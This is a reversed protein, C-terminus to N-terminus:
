YSFEKTPVNNEDDTGVDLLVVNDGAKNSDTQIASYDPLSAETDNVHQIIVDEVDRSAVVYHNTSEEITAPTGVLLANSSKKRMKNKHQMISSPKIMFYDDNAEVTKTQASFKGAKKSPASLWLEALRQMDAQNQAKRTNPSHSSSIVPASGVMSFLPMDSSNIGQGVGIAHQLQGAAQALLADTSRSPQQSHGRGPKMGSMSPSGKLYDGKEEIVQLRSGGTGDDGDDDSSAFDHDASVNSNGNGYLDPQLSDNSKLIQQDSSMGVLSSALAFKQSAQVFDFLEAIEEKLDLLDHHLKSIPTKDTTVEDVIQNINPTVTHTESKPNVSKIISKLSKKLTNVVAVSDSGPVANMQTEVQQMQRMMQYKQAMKRIEKRRQAIKQRKKREKYEKSKRYEPDRFDAITDVRKMAEKKREDEEDQEVDGWQSESNQKNMWDRLLGFLAPVLVVIFMLPYVLVTFIIFSIQQLIVTFRGVEARNRYCTNCIEPRYVLLLEADTTDLSPRFQELYKNLDYRQLNHTKCHACVWYETQTAFLDQLGHWVRIGYSRGHPKLLRGGGEVDIYRNILVVMLVDMVLWVIAICFVFINLPPPMLGSSKDLEYANKIYQYVVQHEAQRIVKNYTFTIMAILLRLMLLGVVLYFIVTIQGLNSRWLPVWGDDTCLDDGEDGCYELVSFDIKGFTSKAMYQFTSSATSFEESHDGVFSRVAFAFGIMILGTLKLYNSLDNKMAGIIKILPGLTSDQEFFHLTRGWLLIANLGYLFNFAVTWAEGDTRCCADEMYHDLQRWCNCIYSDNYYFAQDPDYYMDLYGNTRYTDNNSCLVNTDNHPLPWDNFTLDCGSPWYGSTSSIQSTQACSQWDKMKYGTNYNYEVQTHKEKCAGGFWEFIYLARVVIQLFFNISIAMDIYNTWNTLYETVGEEHCLQWLEFAMYGVNFVWFLVESADPTEYLKPRRILLYSFFILYCTYLTMEVIQKGIPQFYFTRPSKMIELLNWANIETVEFTRQPNLFFPERSIQSAIKKIKSQSLFGYLRYEFALDLPTMGEVDSPTELIIAALHHSEVQKILEVAIGVYKEKMKLFVEKASVEISAFEDAMAAVKLAAAISYKSGRIVGLLVNDIRKFPLMLFQRNYELILQILTATPAIMSIFELTHLLFERQKLELKGMVYAFCYVAYRDYDLEIISSPPTREGQKCAHLLMQVAKLKKKNKIVLNNEENVEYGNGDAGDYGFVDLKSEWGGAAKNASEGNPSQMEISPNNFFSGMRISPPLPGGSEEEPHKEEGVGKKLCGCPICSSGGKIFSSQAMINLSASRAVTKRRKSLKSADARKRYSMYDREWQMGLDADGPEKVFRGLQIRFLMLELCYLCYLHKQNQCWVFNIDKPPPFMCHDCLKVPQSQHVSPHYEYWLLKCPEDIDANGDDECFICPVFSNEDDPDTLLPDL